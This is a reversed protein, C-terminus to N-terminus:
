QDERSYFMRPGGCDDVTNILINEDDQIVYLYEERSMCSSYIEIDEITPEGDYQLTYAPTDYYSITVKFTGEVKITDNQRSRIKEVTKDERLTYTDQFDMEDGEKTCEETHSCSMKFLKWVQPLEVEIETESDEEKDDTDADSEAESETDTEEETAEEVVEPKEKLVEQDLIGSDSDESCAFILFVSMLILLKKM